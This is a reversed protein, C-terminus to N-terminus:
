RQPKPAIEDLKPIPNSATKKTRDLPEIERSWRAASKEQEPIELIKWFILPPHKKGEHVPSSWFQVGSIKRPRTDGSHSSPNSAARGRGYPNETTLSSLYEPYRFRLLVM